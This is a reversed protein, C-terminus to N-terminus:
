LFNLDGDTAGLIKTSIEYSFGARAFAALEKKINPAKTGRFPGLKKRRAHTLAAEWESQAANVGHSDNYSQLEQQMLSSEIGKKQLAMQIMRSSKGRRRLSSVVGKAYLEDNLLGARVFKEILTDLMALCTQLNQESHHDCSRRIKRAMVDRFHAQSASFRGLYHLGANHLYNETIKRRIKKHAKQPGTEKKPKHKGSEPNPQKM